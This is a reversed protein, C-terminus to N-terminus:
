AKWSANYGRTDIHIFGSYLGVGGRFFGEKRLQMAVKHAAEPGAEYVLDLANNRTHHSRSAGGCMSNYAPTRYASTIYSLPTGLRHRIEDAVKLTAPLNHWLSSPPLGNTVGGRTRLHPTIVEHAQIYRFSHQALFHAYDGEYLEPHLERLTPRPPTPPSPQPSFEEAQEALNEQLSSWGKELQALGKDLDEREFNELAKASVLGAGCWRGLGWLWRRRTLSPAKSM